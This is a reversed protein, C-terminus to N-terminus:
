SSPYGRPARIVWSPPEDQVALIRNLGARGPSIISKTRRVVLRCFLFTTTWKAIRLDYWGILRPNRARENGSKPDYSFLPIFISGFQWFFLCLTKNSGQM